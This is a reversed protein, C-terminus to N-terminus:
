NSEMSIVPKIQSHDYKYFEPYNTLIEEIFDNVSFRKDEFIIPLEKNFKLYNFVVNKKLKYWHGCIYKFEIHKELLDYDDCIKKFEVITTKGGNYIGDCCNLYVYKGKSFSVDNQYSGKINLVICDHSKLFKSYEYRKNKMNYYIIFITYENIISTQKIEAIYQTLNETLDFNTYFIDEFVFM